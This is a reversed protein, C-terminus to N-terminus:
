GHHEKRKGLTCGCKEFDDPGIPSQWETCYHRWTGRGEDVPIDTHHYRCEGCTVPATREKRKSLSSLLAVNEAKLADREAEAREWAERKPECELMM